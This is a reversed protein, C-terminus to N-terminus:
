WWICGDCKWLWFVSTTVMRGRKLWTIHSSVPLIRSYWCRMRRAFLPTQSLPMYLLSPRSDCTQFYCWPVFMHKNM